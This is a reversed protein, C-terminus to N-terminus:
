TKKNREEDVTLQLMRDLENWATEEDSCLFTMTLNLGWSTGCDERVFIQYGSDDAAFM